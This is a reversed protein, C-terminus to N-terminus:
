SYVFSFSFVGCFPRAQPSGAHQAAAHARLAASRLGRARAERARPARPAPRAAPRPQAATGRRGADSQRRVM